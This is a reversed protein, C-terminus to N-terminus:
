KQLTQHIRSVLQQMEFPKRFFHDATSENISAASIDGASYLFIPLHPYSGSNKLERCIQRGDNDGLFIDMLLLDPPDTQLTELLRTATALGTVQMQNARLMLTVMELLDEDDDVILVKVAPIPNM